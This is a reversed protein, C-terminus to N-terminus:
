FIIFSLIANFGKIGQDKEPIAAMMALDHPSLKGVIIELIGLITVPPLGAQDEQFIQDGIKDGLRVENGIVMVVLGIKGSFDTVPKVAIGGGCPGDAALLFQFFRLPM